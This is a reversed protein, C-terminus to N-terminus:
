TRPAEMIKITYSIEFFFENLLIIDHILNMFCNFLSSDIKTRQPFLISKGLSTEM